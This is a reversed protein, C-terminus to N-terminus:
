RWEPRRRAGGVEEGLQPGVDPLLVALDDELEDAPEAGGDEDELPGREREGEGEAEVVLVVVVELGLVPLRVMDSAGDM